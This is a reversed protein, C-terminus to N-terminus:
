QFFAHSKLLTANEEQSIRIYGLFAKESTHGTIKMISIAPLKDKYANTAFSRRGCHASILEYKKYVEQVRKGGKTKTLVVTEDIGALEGIEKLM